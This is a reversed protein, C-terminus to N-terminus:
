KILISNLYINIVENDCKNGKVTLNIGRGSLAKTKKNDYKIESYGFEKKLVIFYMDKGKTIKELARDIIHIPVKKDSAIKCARWIILEAYSSELNSRIQEITLGYELMYPIYYQIMEKNWYSGVNWCIVLDFCINKLYSTLESSLLDINLLIVDCEDLNSEVSGVKYGKNELLSKAREICFKNKEVSIVKHETDLLSLTGQGTGTGIELIIKYKKIKSCMWLYVGNSYFYDSSKQWLKSYFEQENAM